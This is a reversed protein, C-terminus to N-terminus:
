NVKVSVMNNSQVCKLRTLDTSLKNKEEKTTNINNKVTVFWGCRTISNMASDSLSAAGGEVLAVFGATKLSNLDAKWLYITNHVVQSVVLSLTHVERTEKRQPLKRSYNKNIANSFINNEILSTLNIDFGQVM